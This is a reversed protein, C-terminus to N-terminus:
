SVKIILVSKTPGLTDMICLNWQLHSITANFTVPNDVGSAFSVSTRVGCHFAELGKTLSNHSILLTTPNDLYYNM